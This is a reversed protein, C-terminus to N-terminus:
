SKLNEYDLSFSNALDMNNRNKWCEYEKNDNQNWNGLIYEDSVVDEGKM